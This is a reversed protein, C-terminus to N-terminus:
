RVEAVVPWEAGEVGAQESEEAVRGRLTLENVITMWRRQTIHTPHNEGTTRTPIRMGM